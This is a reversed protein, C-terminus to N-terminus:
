PGGLQPRRLSRLTSPGAWASGAICCPGPRHEPNFQAACEGRLFVQLAATCVSKPRPDQPGRDGNEQQRRHRPPQGRRDRHWGPDRGQGSNCFPSHATCAKSKCNLTLDVRGVHSGIAGATRCPRTILVALVVCVSCEGRQWSVELWHRWNRYNCGAEAPFVRRESHGLERFRSKNVVTMCKSHSGYFCTWTAQTFMMELKRHWDDNVEQFCAIEVGVSELM